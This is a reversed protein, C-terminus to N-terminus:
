LMGLLLIIVPFGSDPSFFQTSELLQLDGFEFRPLMDMLHKTYLWLIGQDNTASHKKSHCVFCPSTRPGFDAGSYWLVEVKM